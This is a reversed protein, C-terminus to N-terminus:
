IVKIRKTEFAFSFNSADIHIVFTKQYIYM